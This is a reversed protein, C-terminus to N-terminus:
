RGNLSEAVDSHPIYGALLASIQIVPKIFSEDDQWIAFQRPAAGPTSLVRPVLDIDEQEEEDAEQNAAVSAADLPAGEAIPAIPAPEAAEANVDPTVQVSADLPPASTEQGGIEENAADENAADENAADESAADPAGAIPAPRTEPQQAHGHLVSGVFVYCFSILTLAFRTHM